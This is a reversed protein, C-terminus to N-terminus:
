RGAAFLRVAGEGAHAPFINGSGISAIIAISLAFRMGRMNFQRPGILQAIRATLSGRPHDSIRM